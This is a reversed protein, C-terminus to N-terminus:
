TREFCAKWTASQTSYGVAESTSGGFSCKKLSGQAGFKTCTVPCFNHESELFIDVPYSIEIDIGVIPSISVILIDIYRIKHYRM